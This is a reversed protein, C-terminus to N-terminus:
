VNEIATSVDLEITKANYKNTHAKRLEIRLRLLSGLLDIVMNNTAWFIRQPYWFIEQEYYVWLTQQDSSSPSITILIHPWGRVSYIFSIKCSIRFCKERMGGDILKALIPSSVLKLKRQGVVPIKDLGTSKTSDLCKILTFKRHRSFNYLKYEILSPLRNYSPGQRRSHLNFAFLEESWIFILFVWSWIFYFTNSFRNAIKCFAPFM